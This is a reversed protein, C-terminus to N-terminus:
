ILKLGFGPLDPVIIQGDVFKYASYDVGETKGPIGEIIIVNGVGAALQAVYYPRPIWAWTHPSAKVGARELEPM